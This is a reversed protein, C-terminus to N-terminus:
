EVPARPQHPYHHFYAHLLDIGENYRESTFSLRIMHPVGFDSGPVTAVKTKQFIEKCLELISRKQSALIQSVDLCFYFGGKPFILGIHPLDRLRQATYNRRKEYAAALERVQEPLLLAAVAGYQAVPDTTLLTHEQMIAMAQALPALTKPILCWGVRRTYMRYGKSCSDTLVFNSKLKLDLVSTPRVGDFSVNNYIEDSLIIGRGRTKHHLIRDVLQIDRASLINGLPNGPSNIVLLRCRPTIARELEAALDHTGLVRYYRIPVRLILANIKYMCYYPRPLVIEDGPRLVCQFLNRMITSTGTAVVINAPESRYMRALTERLLPLGQPYVQNRLAQDELAARMADMIKPHLPMESKGLTMRIAARGKDSEDWENAMQDLTFMDFKEHMLVSTMSGSERVKGEAGLEEEDAVRIALERKSMENRYFGGKEM